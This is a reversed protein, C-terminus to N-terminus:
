RAVPPATGPPRTKWRKHPWFHQEPHSRVAREVAAVYARAFALIDAELDGTTPVDLPEIEVRYRHLLGPERFAFAVFVPVGTRLAFMAPGRATAAPRGFFPVFVGNRHQNQDGVIASIRGSRLSRLVARPAEGMEIVRMGLRERAAFLEEQFRRNAMGKAVADLPLGRAAVAAGGVEWNGVHGTLILAGGAQGLAKRVPELGEVHTRERVREASWGGLRFLAVAEKGLHVYSARAVRARERGSLEPFAWALHRDVDTRRVRVVTGALLGLGAGLLVAPREPLLTLASRVIRFLRFELRHALTVRSM